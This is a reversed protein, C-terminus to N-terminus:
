IEGQTVGQLEKSGPRYEFRAIRVPNYNQHITCRFSLRGLCVLLETGDDIKVVDEEFCSQLHCNESIELEAVDNGSLSNCVFTRNIPLPSGEYHQTTFIYNNTAYVDSGNKDSIPIIATPVKGQLSLTFGHLENFYPTDIDKPYQNKIEANQCCIIPSGLCNLMKFEVTSYKIGGNWENSEM